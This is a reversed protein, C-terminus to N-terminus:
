LPAVQALRTRAAHVEISELHNRGLGLRCMAQVVPVWCM